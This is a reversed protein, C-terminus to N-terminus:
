GFRFHISVEPSVPLENLFLRCCNVYVYHCCFRVVGGSKYSCFECLPCSMKLYGTTEFLRGSLVNHVISLGELYLMLM